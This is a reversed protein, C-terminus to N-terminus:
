KMTSLTVIGVLIYADLLWEYLNIVKLSDRLKNQINAMENQNPHM